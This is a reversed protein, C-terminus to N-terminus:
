YKVIPPNKMMPHTIGGLINIIPYHLEKDLFSSVMKTRHGTRCIIAFPKTTDVKANLEKLFKPIDYKGDAYFFTIPISNKIIGTSVWEAKTRIDVIPTHSDIFKQTFNVNKVEAFLSTLGLLIIFIANKL